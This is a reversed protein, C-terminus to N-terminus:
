PKTTPRGRQATRRMTGKLRNGSEEYALDFSLSKFRPAVAALWAKPPTYATLFSYTTRATGDGLTARAVTVDGRDAVNDWKTGWARLAASIFADGHLDEGRADTPLPVLATFSLLVGDKTNAAEFRAVDAALGAVTLTNMCWNAM